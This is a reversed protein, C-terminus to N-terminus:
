NHLLRLFPICLGFEQVFDMCFDLYNEKKNNVTDAGKGQSKYKKLSVCGRVTQQVPSLIFVQYFVRRGEGQHLFDM